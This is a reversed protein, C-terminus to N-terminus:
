RLRCIETNTQKCWNVTPTRSRTKEKMKQWTLSGFALDVSEACLPLAGHGGRSNSLKDFTVAHSCAMILSLSARIVESFSWRFYTGATLAQLAPAFLLMSKESLEVTSFQLPYRIVEIFILVDQAVRAIVLPIINAHFQLM